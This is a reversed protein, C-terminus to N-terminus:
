SRMPMWLVVRNARDGIAHVAMSLPWKRVALSGAEVLADVDMMLMGMNGPDAEYPQLMAATQPGLAGDSFLKVGGIRLFDDGFGSRLGVDVAPQLDELPIGKLM